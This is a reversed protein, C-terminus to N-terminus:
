DEDSYSGDSGNKKSGNPYPNNDTSLKNAVRKLRQRDLNKQLQVAVRNRCDGFQLHLGCKLISKNNEVAKTIAMEVKNGLFHSQQNSAKIDFLTQHVSMAEIIRAITQPSVNNSEINLKELTKNVELSSALITAATDTMMTNALSLEKLQDNRELADFLEIFINEQVPVNNLIVQKTNPDNAQIKQLIDEPNTKNPQEAPFVKLPTAKTIGKWGIDPDARPNKESQSAHYQDQNMMSHLGMIGALDVIEDTTASSLAIEVDEGLDIDLEIEENFTPKPRSPASYTKGRVTGPVHPVVDPIDPMNLAEQEIFDLLAKKNFGGTAPKDCRYNSRLSPPFQPDDPDAEDLLKQIEGPSLREVLEDIDLDALNETGRNSIYSSM